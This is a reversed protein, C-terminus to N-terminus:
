QSAERPPSEHQRDPKSPTWSENDDANVYATVEMSLSIEEFEPQTWQMNPPGKM